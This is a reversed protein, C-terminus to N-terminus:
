PRAGATGGPLQAPARSITSSWSQQHSRRHAATQPQVFMDRRLFAFVVALSTAFGTNKSWLDNTANSLIFQFLATYYIGSTCYRPNSRFLFLLYTVLLPITIFLGCVMAFNIWANEIAVLGFQRQLNAVDRQDLGFWLDQLPTSMLLQFAYERSLTSGDDRAFRALMVDFVDFEAMVPLALALGALLTVFWV